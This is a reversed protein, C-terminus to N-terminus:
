PNAKKGAQKAKVREDQDKAAVTKAGGTNFNPNVREWYGYQDDHNDNQFILGSAMFKNVLQEVREKTLGSEKALASVSRYNFSSRVLGSKGDKGVFFAREENGKYVEHWKKPRSM